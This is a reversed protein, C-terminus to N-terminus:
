RYRRRLAAAVKPALAEARAACCANFAQNWLPTRHGFHEPNWLLSTNGTCNESHATMAPEETRNTGVGKVM